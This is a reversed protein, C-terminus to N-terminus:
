ASTAANLAIDMLERIKEERTQAVVRGLEDDGKLVVLTSRRPIRMRAAMQSRGYLDWDIEIFTINAEYAPNEAKLKDMVRKQAHCTSCWSATFDLFLTEGADLRADLMGPKYALPAAGAAHPLLGSGTTALFAASLQFFDRRHM